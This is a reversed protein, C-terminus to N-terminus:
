NHIFQKSYNRIYVIIISSIKNNASSIAVCESNDKKGLHTIKLHM